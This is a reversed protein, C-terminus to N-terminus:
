RRAAANSNAPLLWLLNPRPLRRAVLRRAAFHTHVQRMYKACVKALIRRNEDELTVKEARLQELQFSKEQLEDQAVQAHQLEQRLKANESREDRIVRNLDSM